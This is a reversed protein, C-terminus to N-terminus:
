MPAREAPFNRSAVITNAWSPHRLTAHKRGCWICHASRRLLDPPFDRSGLPDGTAREGHSFFPRLARGRMSGFGARPNSCNPSRVSPSWPALPLAIRAPRWAAVDRRQRGSISCDRVHGPPLVQDEGHGAREAHHSEDSLHNPHDRENAAAKADSPPRPLRKIKRGVDTKGATTAAAGM